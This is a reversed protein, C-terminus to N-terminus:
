AMLVSLHPLHFRDNVLNTSLQIGHVEKQCMFSQFLIFVIQLSSGQWTATPFDSAKGWVAGAGPGWVSRHRACPRRNEWNDGNWLRHVCKICYKVFFIKRKRQQDLCIFLVFGSKRSLVFIYVNLGYLQIHPWFVTLVIDANNSAGSITWFSSLPCHLAQDPQAIM